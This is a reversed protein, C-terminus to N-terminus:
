TSKPTLGHLVLNFLGRRTLKWREPHSQTHARTHTHTHTRTYVYRCVSLHTYLYQYTRLCHEWIDRACQEKLVHFSQFVSSADVICMIMKMVFYTCVLLCVASSWSCVSLGVYLCVCVFACVFACTHIHTYMLMYVWLCLFMFNDLWPLCSCSFLYLSTYMHVYKCLYIQYTDTHIYMYIHM